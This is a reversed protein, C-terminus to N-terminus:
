LTISGNSSKQGIKLREWFLTCHPWAMPEEESSTTPSWIIITASLLFPLTAEKFKSQSDKSSTKSLLQPGLTASRQDRHEQPIGHGRQGMGRINQSSLNSPSGRQGVTKLTLAFRKSKWCGRGRARWLTYHKKKNCKSLWGRGWGWGRGREEEEEEEKKKESDAIGLSASCLRLIMRWLWLHRRAKM